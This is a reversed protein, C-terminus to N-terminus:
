MLYLGYVGMFCNSNFQPSVVDEMYSGNKNLLETIRKNKNRNFVHRYMEKHSMSLHYQKQTLYSALGCYSNYFTYLDVFSLAPFLYLSTAIIVCYNKNYIIKGLGDTYASLNIDHM